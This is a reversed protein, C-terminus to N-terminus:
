RNESQALAEVAAEARDEVQSATTSRYILTLTRDDFSGRKDYGLFNLLATEPVDKTIVESLREFLKPLYAEFPIFDDAVGDCMAALLRPPSSLVQVQVRDLWENWVKSTLFYTVGATTGVDPEALTIIRGDALEAAVLGDGVQVVGLISGQEGPRHIAALFTTGLHGLPIERKKAEAELAQWARKVARHLITECVEKIDLEGNSMSRIFSTMTAIAEDAARRSGVRSLPCSGGGDCVVMLHWGGVEAIAMADERFIGKHAHMKGRRSAGIIRWDDGATISKEDTHQVRDGLEAPPEVEKWIAAVGGENVPAPEANAVGTPELRTMQSNLDIVPSHPRDGKAEGRGPQEAPTEDPQRETQGPDTANGPQDMMEGERTIPETKTQREKKGQDGAATNQINAPEPSENLDDALTSLQMPPGIAALKVINPNNSMQGSSFRESRPQGGAANVAAKLNLFIREFVWSVENL